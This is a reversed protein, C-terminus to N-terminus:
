AAKRMINMLEMMFDSERWPRKKGSLSQEVASRKREVLQSMPEDFTKRAVIYKISVFDAESGIRTFRAEAQEENAPNWQREMLVADQCFQFNKGEGCALTSAVLVRCDPNNKFQQEIEHVKHPALGGPMRAVPSAGFEPMMENLADQLMDAARIHHTFIVLKRKDGNDWNELFERAYEVTPKVKALGILQRMENMSERLALNAEWKNTDGMEADDFAQRFKVLQENYMKKLEDGLDCFWYTRQIKPIEPMVEARTHRLIFDGTIEQFRKWHKIGGYYFKGTRDDFHSEVWNAIFSTERPFLHPALINLITFYEAGHNKIPTGSLGIVHDARSCMTRILQTRKASPNKINQVEDIIITKFTAEEVWSKGGNKKARKISHNLLDMSCIFISFFDFHPEDASSDILQCMKGTWEFTEMLWQITLSSKCVILIPQIRDHYAKILSTSIITKGLGMELTYLCRLNAERGFECARAQFPYPRYGKSRSKIRDFKYHPLTDSILQHRCYLHVVQYTKGDVYNYVKETKTAHAVVKCEPCKTRLVTVRTTM